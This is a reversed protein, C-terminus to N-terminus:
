LTRLHEQLDRLGRTMHIKTGDKLVVVHEGSATPRAEHIRALNVIYSRSLRLFKRRPLKNELSGLTERIMHKEAGAHLIVYNGDAEIWDLDDVPVFRIRDGSRVAIRTLADAQGGQRAELLALIRATDPNQKEALQARARAVAEQLRAPKFPKLIYDLAHVEFAKVAHTDYATVFIIAPLKEGAAGLAALTGFGDLGPMQIDLLVLDPHHERIAEVAAQGDSCDPLLEIGDTKQLLTRLRQRALPEDDVILTKM